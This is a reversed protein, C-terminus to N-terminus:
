RSGLAHEFERSATAWTRMGASRAIAASQMRALQVPDICARMADALKHLETVCAHDGDGLAEATAGGATALVPVGARLAETLVMGYGEYSAAHVVLSAQALLEALQGDQVRNARRAAGGPM